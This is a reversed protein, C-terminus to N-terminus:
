SKKSNEATDEAIILLKVKGKAMNIECTGAGSILNGSKRAFGLYSELKSKMNWFNKQSRM